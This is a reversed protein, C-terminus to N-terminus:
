PGFMEIFRRLMSRYEPLVTRSAEALAPEVWPEAQLGAEWANQAAVQRPQAGIQQGQAPASDDHGLLPMGPVSQPEVASAEAGSDPEVLQRIESLVWSPDREVEVASFRKTTIGRVRHWDDRFADREGAARGYHSGGDVEIALRVAPCYFDLRYLGTSYEREWGPPAHELLEWLLRESRTIAPGREVPVVTLEGALDLRHRIRWPDLVPSDTLPPLDSVTV